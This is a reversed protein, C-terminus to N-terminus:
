PTATFQAKLGREKDWLFSEAARLSGNFGKNYHWADPSTLSRLLRVVIGNETENTKLVFDEKHHKDGTHWEIFQAQDLMGRAELYLIDKLKVIREHYGHTLGILVKGYPYYKRAKPSNDVNVRDSKQYLAGLVEGLYYSREEDHNGPIILVDVPAVEACMDILDHALQWGVKFTKRWRTDEQQPTGNVTTNFQNDVNYYDNGIPFLIREIPFNQTYSMLEEMVRMATETQIKLDSDFGTEEGWTLKGIHLDPMEVEYLMGGIPKPYKLRPLKSTAQYVATKFDEVLQNKVIEETRRSLRVKVSFVPRVKFEGSDNVYGHLVKGNEVKWNVERDKRWAANKGVEFWDIKWITTDIHLYNILDQESQIPDDIEATIQATEGFNKFTYSTSPDPVDEDTTIVGWKECDKCVIKQKGSSTKGRKQIDSSGCHECIPM